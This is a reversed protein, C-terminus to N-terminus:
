RGFHGWPGAGDPGVGQVIWCAFPGGFPDQFTTDTDDDDLATVDTFNEAARCDTARWVRYRQAVVDRQFSLVTRGASWDASAIAIEGPIGCPHVDCGVFDNTLTVDDVWWGSGTGNISGLRFRVQVTKGAFSGLDATTRVWGGSSGSWCQRADTGNGCTHTYPHETFFLHLDTWSAGGNDSIEVMAGSKGATLEYRSWFALTAAGQPTLPDTTLVVDRQLARDSAYYSYRGGATHNQTSVVRWEDSGFLAQHSWGPAEAGGHEVAEGHSEIRHDSEVLETFGDQRATCGPCGMGVSFLPTAQCGVGAGIRAHFTVQATGGSLITGAPRPSDLVAVDAGAALTAWAEPAAESGINEITVAIEVTEGVDPVGDADCGAGADDVAHAALRLWPGNMPIVETTGEYPRDDHGTVTVQMPGPNMPPPDLHLLAVGAADTYGAALIGEDPKRAAVLEGEVPAGARRVTVTLADSGAPLQADHAVDLLRPARTWMTLTPESLLNYMDVYYAVTGTNGYHTYLDAKARNNVVALPPTADMPFLHTNLRRQYYDDENWYSNNSAGLYAIAGKHAVRQWTEAFCETDQLSGTVCANAIVFPYMGDNTNARVDSAGYGGHSTPGQWSTNSGHGSYNVFARGENISAAIESTDADYSNYHRDCAPYGHSWSTAAYGNPRYFTDICWDHTAEIMGIYGSDATGIFGTRKIWATAPFSAREYTMLKDVVDQAQQATRVSIRAVALDALYDSGSVCAYWNDTVQSNGGGNGQHIPTFDTDGVLLVATLRPATWSDWAQQIVQKVEADTPTGDAIESTRRAVVKWGTREKWDLFPALADYFSDHVIVLLGEAGSSAEPALPALPARSGCAPPAALPPNLALGAALARGAPTDPRGLACADGGRTEVILRARTWFSLAGQAASYAVPRIEVLALERDRIRVRDVVAVPEAPLFASTAYHAGDYAFAPAPGRGPTKVRPPQVPWLRAPLGWASLARIEPAGQLELRVRVEAGPPVEVLRRLVPIEPRGLEGALNGGDFALQAFGGEVSDKVEARLGPVEVIATTVEPTASELRVEAATGAAGARLPLWDAARASGASLLLLCVALTTRRVAFYRPRM